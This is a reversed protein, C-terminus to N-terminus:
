RGLGRFVHLLMAGISGQGTRFAIEPRFHTIETPIIPM